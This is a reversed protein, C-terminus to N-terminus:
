PKIMGRAYALGIGYGGTKGGEPRSTRRCGM